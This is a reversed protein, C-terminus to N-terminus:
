HGNCQDTTVMGAELKKKQSFIIRASNLRQIKYQDVITLMIIIVLCIYCHTHHCEMQTLSVGGVAELNKNCIGFRIVSAAHGFQEHM